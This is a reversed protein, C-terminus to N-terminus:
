RLMMADEFNTIVNKEKANGNIIHLCSIMDQMEGYATFWIERRSMNLRHGYYM